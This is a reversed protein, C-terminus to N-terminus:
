NPNKFPTSNKKSVNLTKKKCLEIEKRQERAQRDALPRSPYATPVEVQERAQREALPKSPYATLPEAVQQQSARVQVREQLANPRQQGREARMKDLVSRLYKRGKTEEPIFTRGHRTM